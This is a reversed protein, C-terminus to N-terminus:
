VFVTACESALEYTWLFTIKTPIRQRMQSVQLNERWQRIIGAENSTIGHSAIHIADYGLQIRGTWYTAATETICRKAAIKEATTCCRIWITSTTTIWLGWVTWNSRSINVAATPLGYESLLLFFSWKIPCKSFNFLSILSM